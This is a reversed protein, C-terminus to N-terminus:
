SSDINGSFRTLLCGFSLYFAHINYIYLVGNLVGTRVSACTDPTLSSCLQAEPKIKKNNNSTKTQTTKNEKVLFPMALAAVQLLWHTNVGHQCDHGSHLLLAFLPILAKSSFPLKEDEM